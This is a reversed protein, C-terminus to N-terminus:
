AGVEAFMGDLLNNRIFSCYTDSRRFDGHAHLPNAKCGGGCLYRFDCSGCRENNEEVDMAQSFTRNTDSFFITDIDDTFINGLKFENKHFLHCPYVDGRDSISINSIGAHCGFSRINRSLHRAGRGETPDVVSEDVAIFEDNSIRDEKDQRARGMPMAPTFKLRVTEPLKERLRGSEAMNDRHLTMQVNVALDPQGALLGIADLVQQYHGEGRTRAHSEESAGDLSIKVYSFLRGIEAANDADVFLGNTLLECRMGARHCYRAVEFFDPHIMPEGGSFTITPRASLIPAAREFFDIFDQGGHKIAIRPSSGRYCYSCELNCKNTMHLYVAGIRRSQWEIREWRRSPPHQMFLGATSSQDFFDMVSDPPVGNEGCLQAIEGFSRVGDMLKLAVAGTANTHVWTPATPNYAIFREGRRYVRLHTPPPAVIAEIGM